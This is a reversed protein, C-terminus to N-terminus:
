TRNRWETPSCDMWRRFARTFNSLEGFGLLYAIESISHADSRLLMCAQERRTANLLERFSTGADALRRQLSRESMALAQAVKAQAPEGEPLLGVLVLRVRNCVDEQNLRALYDAAVAESARALDPNALLSPQDLVASDFVIRNSPAGFCLPARFARAFAQVDDPEARQLWVELVQVDSGLLLRCTRVIAYMLADVAAPHGQSGPAITLDIHCTDQEFTLSIEGAESVVKAYRMLWHLMERLSSCAMLAYGLAHFTTPKIRQAVLLGILPEGTAAIALDWLRSTQRVPFRANPDKLQAANIGAADLLVRSDVGMSDITGALVAIWSGLATASAPTSANTSRTM